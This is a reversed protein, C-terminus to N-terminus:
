KGICFSSFIEGLLDDSSFEGTISSLAQQALRLEEAFIELQDANKLWVAASELREKTRSLAQLHRQRAMYAGEGALNAQWGATKLLTTQLLAIGEGNKVSLYVATGSANEAVHPPLATLDIKNHVTLVPLRHPLRALVSRDEETIGYRSDVLLLVLDAQEIAAYTRAIGHQEVIDSTERLGATDILHLPIGEIEISQRITDRTTGPIDTVIAIEDGALRNLLSSKGVNPQGALVVKIGEQLMNGQRSAALVQELKTQIAALQEVAHASQLFDIEEEPFDLTAEVLVRLDTLANVLQHITSSFEGQLSRVACRAASTTSAEILDAVAEAQALDLKNSLFARLTFEGPEALRAGLQLCRDLLLGMVAPGGHGQLELVDEGTYSNPSRFYLAIGQDIVQQSQDLFNFLGAYRPEPLKGLLNRAFPELNTGSIRIIGVGGRGPPTAIAAIIDNNQVPIASQQM